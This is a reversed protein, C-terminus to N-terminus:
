QDTNLCGKNLACKRCCMILFLIWFESDQLLAWGHVDTHEHPKVLSRSRSRSHRHVRTEPHPLAISQRRSPSLEVEADATDSRERSNHRLFPTAVNAERLEDELDSETLREYVGPGVVPTYVDWNESRRREDHAPVVEISYRTQSHAPIAIADTHPTVKVLALGVLM